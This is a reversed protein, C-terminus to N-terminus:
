LRFFYPLQAIEIKVQTISAGHAELPIRKPLFEVTNKPIDKENIVKNEHRCKAARVSDTYLGPCSKGVFRTTGRYVKVKPRAELYKETGKM